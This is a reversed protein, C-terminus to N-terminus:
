VPLIRADVCRRGCGLWPIALLTAMLPSVFALGAAEALPMTRLALVGFTSAALLLLARVIHAPLRKTALLSCRRFPVVLVVVLLCHITYRAWVLVFVSFTQSLHKATADMAALLLQALLLLVIARLFSSSTAPM